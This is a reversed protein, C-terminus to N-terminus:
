IVKMLHPNCSPPKSDEFIRSVDEFLIVNVTTSKNAGKVQYKLVNLGKEDRVHWNKKLVKKQIATWDSPNDQSQAFDQFIGPTMLAAGENVIHVRAKPQNTKIVGTKIGDRLWDFFADVPDNYEGM